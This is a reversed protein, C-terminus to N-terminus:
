LINKVLNKKIVTCANKVTKAATSTRAYEPVIKQSRITGWFSVNRRLSEEPSLIHKGRAGVCIKYIVATMRPGQKAYSCNVLGGFWM